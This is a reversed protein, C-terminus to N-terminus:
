RGPVLRANPKQRFEQVKGAWTTDVLHDYEVPRLMVWIPQAKKASNCAWCAPALNRAEHVGGRSLPHLHDFGTMPAGCYVCGLGYYSVVSAVEDETLNAARYLARRLSGRLSDYVRNNERWRVEARRRKVPNLQRWKRKYARLRKPHAIRQARSRELHCLRCGHNTLYRGHKWTDHGHPCFQRRGSYILQVIM